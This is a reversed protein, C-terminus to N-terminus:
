QGKVVLRAIRRWAGSTDVVRPLRNGDGHRGSWFELAVQADVEWETNGFKM